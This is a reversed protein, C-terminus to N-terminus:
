FLRLCSLNRSQSGPLDGPCDVPDYIVFRTLFVEEVRFNFEDPMASWPAGPRVAQHRAEAM